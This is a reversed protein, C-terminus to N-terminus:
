LPVKLTKAGLLHIGSAFCEVPLQQCGKKLTEASPFGMM